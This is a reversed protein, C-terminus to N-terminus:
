SAGGFALAPDIRTIKRVGALSALSGVALAIVPLRLYADVPITVPFGFLPSVAWAVVVSAAAGAISIAAAQLVLGGFLARNTTGMAKLTAFERSRELIGVYVIAGVIGTAMLWLLANVIGITDTTSLLVRDFDARVDANTIVDLATDDVAAISPDIHGRVMVTSVVDQGAFLLHQVDSLPLFVTPASFLFATDEVVAAVPIATGGLVIEDGVRRHLTADTIAGTGSAHELADALKAPLMPSQPDYGVVNVDLRGVTTRGIVLASAGTVGPLAAIRDALNADIVQSSTFPGGVGDAVVWQDAGFLEVTKPGEQQMQNLVGSMVLGLGFALAAVVVVITFRRRRWQLDRLSSRIV